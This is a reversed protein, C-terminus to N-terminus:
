NGSVIINDYYFKEDGAWTNSTIRIRLSVGSLGGQFVTGSPFSGDAPTPPVLTHNVTGNGGYDAILNWAGGNISYEINVYDNENNDHDTSHKTEDYELDGSADIEVSFCISAYGSIDISQTTFLVAGDTNNLEFQGSANTYAYDNDQGFFDAASDDITWTVGGPYDGSDVRKDRGTNITYTDFSELYVTTGTCIVSRNICNISRWRTAQVDYIDCCWKGTTSDSVFVMLGDDSAGVPISVQEAETVIPMLFGGVKASNYNAAELHLVAASNPTTTRVGVQAIIKISSLFVTIYILCKMKNMFELIILGLM